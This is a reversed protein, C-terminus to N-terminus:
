VWGAGRELCSVAAREDIADALVVVPMHTAENDIAALAALTGAAQESWVCLIADWRATPLVERLSTADRTRVIAAIGRPHLAQNILAADGPSDSVLLLQLPQNSPM